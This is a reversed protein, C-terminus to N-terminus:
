SRPLVTITAEGQTGSLEDVSGSGVEEGAGFIGTPVETTMPSTSEYAVSQVPAPSPMATVTATATATATVAQTATATM